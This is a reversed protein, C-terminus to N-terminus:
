RPPPLRLSSRTCARLSDEDCPIFALATDMCLRVESLTGHGCRVALSERPLGPNSAFFLGVLTEHDLTQEETPARLSPPIVVRAYAERTRSFYGEAGLGSCSGHREWEHTILRRSPMIPLMESVVREPVEGAAGVECSPMQPWLGHVVFGHRSGPACQTDERDGARECFSPSWSLALM